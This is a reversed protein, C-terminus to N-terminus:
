PVYLLTLCMELYVIPTNVYLVQPTIFNLPNSVTRPEAAPDRHVFTFQPSQEQLRRKETIDRGHVIMVPPGGKTALAPWERELFWPFDLLYNAIFVFSPQLVGVGVM